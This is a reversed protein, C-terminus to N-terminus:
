SFNEATGPFNKSTWFLQRRELSSWKM